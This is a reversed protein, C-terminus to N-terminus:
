FNFGRNVSRLVVKLLARGFRASNGLELSGVPLLVHGWVEVFCAQHKVM